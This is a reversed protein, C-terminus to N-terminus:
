AANRAASRIQKRARESLGGWYGRQEHDLAWARCEIRVPCTACTAVVEDDVPTGRPVYFRATDMDVCAAHNAWAMPANDTASM